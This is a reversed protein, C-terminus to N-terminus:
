SISCLLPPLNTSGSVRILHHKPHLFHRGALLLPTFNSPELCFGRCRPQRRPFSGDPAQKDHLFDM